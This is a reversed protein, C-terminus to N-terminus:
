IGIMTEQLSVGGPSVRLGRFSSAETFQHRRRNRAACWNRVEVADVSAGLRDAGASARDNERHINRWRNRVFVFRHVFRVHSELAVSQDEANGFRAMWKRITIHICWSLYDLDIYHTDWIFWIRQLNPLSALTNSHAEHIGVMNWRRKKWDQVPSQNNGMGFFDILAIDEVYSANTPMM